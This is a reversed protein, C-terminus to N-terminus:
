RSPAGTTRSGAALRDVSSAVLSDAAQAAALRTRAEDAWAQTRSRQAEPLAEWAAVADGIRDAALARQVPAFAADAASPAPQGVPHVKVWTSAEATVRNWISGTAEPAAPKPATQRLLEALSAALQAAGPAGKEAYPALPKLASDGVGLAALAKLPRGLPQGAALDQRALVALGVVAGDDPQGLQGVQQQVAALKAALDETSAQSAAPKSALAALTTESTGLRQRLEDLSALGAEIKGLREDVASGGAPAAGGSAPAAAASQAAAKAQNAVDAAAKAAAEAAQSRRALPDLAATLESTKQELASARAAIADLGAKPAAGSTASEVASLRAPLDSLPGWLLVGAAVAAAAVAGGVFGAAVAPGAGPSREAAAPGTHVPSADEAAASKRALDASDQAEDSM